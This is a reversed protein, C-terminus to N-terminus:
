NSADGEFADLQAPVQEWSVCSSTHVSFEPVFRDPDHLTGAYFIRLASASGPVSYLRTGCNPCFHREIGNGKDSTDIYSRTEGSVHVHEQSFGIFPTRGSGSM